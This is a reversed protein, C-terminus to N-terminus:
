KQQRQWYLKHVDLGGYKVRWDWITNQSMRLERRLGGCEARRAVAEVKRDGGRCRIQEEVHREQGVRLVM